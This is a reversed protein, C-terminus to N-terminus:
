GTNSITLATTRSGQIRATDQLALGNKLWQFTMPSDSTAAAHFTTTDGPLAWQPAPNTAIIPGTSPGQIYFCPPSTPTANAFAVLGGTAPNFFFQNFSPTGGARAARDDSDPGRRAM